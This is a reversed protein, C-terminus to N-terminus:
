KDRDALREGDTKRDAKKSADERSQLLDHRDTQRDTPGYRM